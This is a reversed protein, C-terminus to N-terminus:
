PAAENFGTKLLKFSLPLVLFSSIFQGIVLSQSHPHYAQKNPDKIWDFALFSWEIERVAGFARNMTQECSLPTAYGAFVDNTAQCQFLLQTTRERKRIQPGIRVTWRGANHAPNSTAMFATKHMTWLYPLTSILNELSRQMCSGLDMM